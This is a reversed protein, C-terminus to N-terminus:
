RIEEDHENAKKPRKQVHAFVIASPRPTVHSRFETAYTWLQNNSVIKNFVIKHPDKKDKHKTDTMSYHRNMAAKHNGAPFLSVEQSEQIHRKRTNKDSEWKNIQQGPEPTTSSQISEQDKGEEKSHHNSFM